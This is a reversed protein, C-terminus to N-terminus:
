AGEKEELARVRRDIRSYRAHEARVENVLGQVTGDLRQVVAALVNMDDRLLRIEELTQRQQRAMLGLDVNDSM